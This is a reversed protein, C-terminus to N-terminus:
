NLNGRRFPHMAAWLVVSYNRVQGEKTYYGNHFSEFGM